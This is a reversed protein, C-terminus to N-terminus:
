QPSVYEEKSDIGSKGINRGDKAETVEKFCGSRGINIGTVIGM